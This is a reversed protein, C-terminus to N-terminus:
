LIIGLKNYLHIDKPEVEPEQLRDVMPSPFVVSHGHCRSHSSTDPFYIPWNRKKIKIKHFNGKTEQLNDM